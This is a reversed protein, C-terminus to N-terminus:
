ILRAAVLADAVPQFTNAPIPEGKVARKAIEAALRADPSRPVGLSASQAQLAKADEGSAM